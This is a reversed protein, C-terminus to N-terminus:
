PFAERLEAASEGFLDGEGPLSIHGRHIECALIHAEDHLLVAALCAVIHYVVGVVGAGERREVYRRFAVAGGRGQGEVARM